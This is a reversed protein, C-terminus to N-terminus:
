TKAYRLWITYLSLGMGFLIGVPILFRLDLWRALLWGIGGFLMPGTVLYAIITAGMADAQSVASPREDAEADSVYDRYAKPRKQEESM